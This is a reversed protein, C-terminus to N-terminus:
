QWDEVLLGPARGFEATNHTVVTLNRRRAIAAILLDNPGILRGGAALFARIRGYEEAADDDYPLSPYTSGLTALRAVNTARRAPPSREVGDVLEGVVVSCLLIDGQPTANIRAILRPQNNRLWGICANADLLYKM